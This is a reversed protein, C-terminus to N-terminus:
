TESLVRFIIGISTGQTLASAFEITESLWCNGIKRLWPELGSRVQGLM